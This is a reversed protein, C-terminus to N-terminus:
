KNRCLISSFLYRPNNEFFHLFDFKCTFWSGMRSVEHSSSFLDVKCNYLVIPYLSNSHICFEVHLELNLTLNILKVFLYLNREKKITKNSIQIFTTKHIFLINFKDHYNIHVQYTYTNPANDWNFCFIWYFQDNTLKSVKSFPKIIMVHLCNRLMPSNLLFSSIITWKKKTSFHHSFWM